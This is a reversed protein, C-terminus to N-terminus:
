ETPCSDYPSCIIRDGYHLLFFHFRVRLSQHRSWLKPSGFCFLSRTESCCLSPNEIKVDGINSSRIFNLKETGAETSKLETLTEACVPFGCKGISNLSNEDYRYKGAFRNKASAGFTTRFCKWERWTRSFIPGSAAAMLFFEHCRYHGCLSGGYVVLLVMHSDCKFQGCLTRGEPPVFFIAM